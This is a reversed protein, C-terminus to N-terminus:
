AASQLSRALPLGSFESKRAAVAQQLKYAEFLCAQKRAKQIRTRRAKRLKLRFALKAAMIARTSAPNMKEM